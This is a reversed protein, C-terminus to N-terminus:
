AADICKNVIIKQAVRRAQSFSWFFRCPGFRNHLASFDPLFRCSKPSKGQIKRQFLSSKTTYLRIGNCDFFSDLGCCYVFACRLICFFRCFIFIMTAINNMIIFKFHKNARLFYAFNKCIACVVEFSLKLFPM